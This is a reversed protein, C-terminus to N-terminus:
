LIFSRRTLLAYILLSCTLYCFSGGTGEDATDTRIYLSELPLCYKVRFFTHLIQFIIMLTEYISPIIKNAKPFVPCTHLFCCMQLGFDWGFLSILASIILYYRVLPRRPRMKITVHEFECHSVKSDLRVASETCMGQQRWSLNKIM